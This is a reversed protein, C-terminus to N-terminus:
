ISRRLLKKVVQASARGKTQKMVQGVLYQFVQDKGAKYDAVPGPNDTIVKKIVLILQIEDKIENVKEKNIRDIFDKVSFKLLEPKNIILNAAQEAGLGNKVIQEFYDALKQTRILLETKQSDINYQKEFRKAKLDPLEPLLAKLEKIQKDAWVIPPIDPEPFYRYDHAAEKTRQSFTQGTKENLGRTEQIPIKGSDLIKAQRKIEHEIAKKVFRFSNLNKIEVKYDPMEFQGSTDQSTLSINVECRMSGKEMDCDSIDLYRMIQQLKKLYIIAADASYIDPESVIEMLAVGSRNFDILTCKTKNIVQHILKATDEEMHVRNIRIKSEEKNNKIILLGTKCFPADYQSIQYGKPLDPYFYNKRDFKSQKAIECNLAMGMLLCWQIAKRNPVPLAGPLGLCVPCTHTNPEVRFHKADCGCFMKSKTKLEVHVEMGIIPFYKM